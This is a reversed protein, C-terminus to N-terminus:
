SVKSSVLPPNGSLRVIQNFDIIAGKIGSERYDLIIGLSHFSLDFRRKSPGPSELTSITKILSWRPLVTKDLPVATLKRSKTEASCPSTTMNM